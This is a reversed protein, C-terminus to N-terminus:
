GNPNKQGPQDQAFTQPCSLLLDLFEPNGHLGFILLQGPELAFSCFQFHFHGAPSQARPLAFAASSLGAQQIAGL